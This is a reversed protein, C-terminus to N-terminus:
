RSQTSRVQAQSTQPQAQVSGEVESGTESSEGYQFDPDVVRKTPRRPRDAM